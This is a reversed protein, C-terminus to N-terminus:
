QLHLTAHGPVMVPTGHGRPLTPTARGVYSAHAFGDACHVLSFLFFVENAAGREPGPEVYVNLIGDVAPVAHSFVFVSLFKGAQM